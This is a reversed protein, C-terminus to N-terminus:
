EHIQAAANMCFFSWLPWDATHNHGSRSSYYMKKNHITPLRKDASREACSTTCMLEGRWSTTELLFGAAAASIPLLLAAAAFFDTSTKIEGGPRIMIQRMEERLHRKSL